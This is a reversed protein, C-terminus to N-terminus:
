LGSGSLTLTLTAGSGLATVNWDFLEYQAAVVLTDFLDGTKADADYTGAPVPLVFTKLIEKAGSVNWARLQVTATPTGGAVLVQATAGFEPWKTLTAAPKTGTTGVSQTDFLHQAM